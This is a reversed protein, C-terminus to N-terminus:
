ICIRPIGITLWQVHFEVETCNEAALPWTSSLAAESDHELTLSVPRQKEVFSKEM